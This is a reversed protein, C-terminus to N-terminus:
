LRIGVVMVDDTQPHEGKWENYLEEVSKSQQLTPLDKIGALVHRFKKRMFKRDKSGGFQDQFGDSALYLMDGRSLQVFKNTFSKETHDTGGLSYRNGDLQQVCGNETFYVPMKAGSYCLELTNLDIMCVAMDMGDAITSEVGNQQHLAQKIKSDLVSLMVNPSNLKNEIVLQNLLSNALLTMFAGPVGHGTCDLAAIVVKNEYANLWYFDGSVIDKPRFFVFSDPFFDKIHNREPLLSLQIRKAYQISDTINRSNEELLMSKTAIEDRQTEIKEKQKSIADNKKELERNSRKTLRVQNFLVGGLCTIIVIGIILGNNILERQKAEFRQLEQEQKLLKIERDKNELNYKTEIEAIRKAANEEYMKENTLIILRFYVLANELDGIKNYYKALEQYCDSLVHMAQIKEALNKSQQLFTITAEYQELQYFAKGIELMVSAQLLQDGYKEALELSQELLDLAEEYKGQLLYTKGIGHYAYSISIEEGSKQDIALAKEFYYLASDYNEKAIAVEGLGIFASSLTYANDASRSLDAAELLYSEAKPYDKMDYHVSGMTNMLDARGSDLAIADFLRLAQVCYDIALENSSMYNYVECIRSLTHALRTQKHPMQEYISKADQAYRLALPYNDNHYYVDSLMFFAEGMKASDQRARYIDLVRQFYFHTSDWNYHRYDCYFLAMNMYANAMGQEYEISRAKEVAKQTYYLVSDQNTFTYASSLQNLIRVQEEGRATQQLAQLLSDASQAYVRGMGALLLMVSIKLYWAKM